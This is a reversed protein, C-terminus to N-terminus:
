KEVRWDFRRAVFYLSVFTFLCIILMDLWFSWGTQGSLAGRFVNAIYTTPMLVSTYQLIGPLYTVPVMVPAAFVLIPFVVRTAINAHNADKSYIGILAGIGSMSFGSLIFILILAPHLIIPLKFLFKGIILVAAMPPISFLTSRIVLATILSLKSVPLVAYHEFFRNQKMWGLQEGLTGLSGLVVAFVINGTVVYVAIDIQYSLILFLFFLTIIPIFSSLLFYWVWGTRINLLQSWTLYLVDRLHKSLTYYKPKGTQQAATGADVPKSIM